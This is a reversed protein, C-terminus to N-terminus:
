QGTAPPWQGGYKVFARCAVDQVEPALGIAQNGWYYGALFGGGRGGLREILLKAEAEILAPDKTQLTRQIDVPGLFSVRGGFREGLLEIGHLRFQDFQLVDVGCEILDEIIATIKGCSHMWVTMGHDHIRGCLARFEPKYIERWMDPSIMLRDQTGWDEAFFIGHAGARAWCDIAKFLENRVITHLRDINAREVLLDCLYNELKRIYRAVSFTFGPINGMHYRQTDAAFAATADAYDEQRGLDPPRYSDLQSWDVIAPEVVEGREYSSLTAWTNGWEDRYRRSENGRPELEQDKYGKVMRGHSIHDNPYPDPMFMGIRPPNQFTV